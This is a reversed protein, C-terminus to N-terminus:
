ASHESPTDRDVVWGRLALRGTMLVEVQDFAGDVSPLAAMGTATIRAAASQPDVLGDRGIKAIASGIRRADIGDRAAIVSTPLAIAFFAALYCGILIRLKKEPTRDSSRRLQRYLRVDIPGLIAACLLSLGVAVTWPGAEGSGAPWLRYVAVMIPAHCLYLVYSWDGLAVLPTIKRESGVGQAAWGVLGVAALGAIWRNTELSFLGTTLALPFVLLGAAAPVLGRKLLMPLLLGGAFAVNAPSLLISYLPFVAGKQIAPFFFAAVLICGLWVIAITELHRQLRAWALLCLLVYYTVEFVLTWEVGLPYARLGAPVLTLAIADFARPTGVALSLLFSLAAVILFIPYIRLIRHSLFAWPSGSRVLHAMLYGSIAFFIAVGYLGFRGDFIALFRSGGRQQQLHISAHYLVVAVAAAGRLYQIRPNRAYDSTLVSPQQAPFTESQVALELPASM